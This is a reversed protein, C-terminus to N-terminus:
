GAPYVYKCMVVDRAIVTRADSSLLFGTLRNPV